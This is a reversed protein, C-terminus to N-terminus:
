KSEKQNIIMHKYRVTIHKYGLHNSSGAGLAAVTKRPIRIETIPWPGAASLASVMVKALRSLARVSEVRSVAAM